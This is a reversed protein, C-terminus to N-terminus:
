PPDCFLVIYCIGDFPSLPVPYAVGKSLVCVVDCSLGQVVVWLSLPLLTPWSVGPSTGSEM